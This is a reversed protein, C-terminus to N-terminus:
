IPQIVGNSKMSAALEGLRTDDFQRRPQHPNPTIAALPLEAPRGGPATSIDPTMDSPAPGLAPPPPQVPLEAEVPSSISILSSLGRGLRSKPKQAEAMHLSREQLILAINWTSCLTAVRASCRDRAALFASVGPGARRVIFLREFVLM